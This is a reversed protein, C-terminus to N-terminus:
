SLRLRPGVIDDAVDALLRDSGFAFARLPILAETVSIGARVAVM